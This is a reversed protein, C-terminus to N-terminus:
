PHARPEVTFLDGPTCALADCLM